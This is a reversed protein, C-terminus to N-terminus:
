AGDIIRELEADLESLSSKIIDSYKTPKLKKTESKSSSAILAIGHENFQYKPKPVEDEQSSVSPIIPSINEPPLKESDPLNFVVKKKIPKKVTDM